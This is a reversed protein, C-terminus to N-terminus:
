PGEHAIRYAEKHPLGLLDELVRSIRSPALGEERLRAALVRPAISPRDAERFVAEGAELEAPFVVFTVEGLVEGSFRSALSELTGAVIEEHLKTLERCVVAGREAGLEGALETLTEGLRRPSEFLVVPVTEARLAALERRRAAGKRTLFGGFRFPGEVGAAAAACAVASAGPIPSVRLGAALALRVLRAGPDSVGPTGADSVLAVAAGGALREVIREAARREKHADFSELPRHIDFRSLLTRTRRTDEALILDARRLAEVARDTLDALNGIPTAVLWLVGREPTSSLM